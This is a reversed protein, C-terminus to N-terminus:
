MLDPNRPLKIKVPTSDAPKTRTKEDNCKKKPMAEKSSNASPSKVTTHPPDASPNVSRVPEPVQPIASLPLSVIPNDGPLNVPYGIRLGDAENCWLKVATIDHKCM